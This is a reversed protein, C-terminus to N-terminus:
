AGCSPALAAPTVRNGILYLVHLVANLRAPWQASDPMRFPVPRAQPHGALGRHVLEEFAGSRIM